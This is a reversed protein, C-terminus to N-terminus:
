YSSSPSVRLQIIQHVHQIIHINENETVYVKYNSLQEHIQLNLSHIHQGAPGWFKREQLSIEYTKCPHKVIYM